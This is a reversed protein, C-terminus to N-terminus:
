KRTITHDGGLTIVRPLTKGSLSYIGPVEADTHPARNLISFHGQEIQEIAYANDYSTV